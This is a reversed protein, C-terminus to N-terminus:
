KRKGGGTSTRIVAAARPSLNGAADYAAVEYALEDGASEPSDWWSLSTTAGLMKGSRWVFYGAVGINDSAARWSLQVQRRKYSGTLSKPATPAVGDQSTVVTFTGSATATGGAALAQITYDAALAAPSATVSYTVSGTAGAAITVSSPSIGGSWGAPVLSTVSFSRAACGYPDTNTVAV